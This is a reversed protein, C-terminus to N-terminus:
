LGFLMGLGKLGASLASGWDFGGQQQQAAKNQSAIQSRQLDLQQNQIALSDLQNQMAFRTKIWDNWNQFKTAELQNQTSTALTALNKARENALNNSAAQHAGQGFMGSQAFQADNAKKLSDFQANYTNAGLAKVQQEFKPTVYTPNNGHAISAARTFYNVSGRLDKIPNNPDTAKFPNDKKHGPFQAFRSAYDKWNTYSFNLM